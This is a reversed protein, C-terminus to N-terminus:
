RRTLLYILGFIISLLIVYAWLGFFYDKLVYWFGFFSNGLILEATM